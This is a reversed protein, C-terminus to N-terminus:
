DKYQRITQKEIRRAIMKRIAFMADLKDIRKGLHHYEIENDRIRCFVGRYEAFNNESSKADQELKTLIESPRMVVERIMNEHTSNSQTSIEKFRWRYSSCIYTNNKYVDVIESGTDKIQYLQGKVLKMSLSMPYECRVNITIADIPKKKLKM